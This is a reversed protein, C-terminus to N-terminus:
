NAVAEQLTLAPHDRDVDALPGPQTFDRRFAYSTPRCDVKANRYAEFITPDAM